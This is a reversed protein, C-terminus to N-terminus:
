SIGFLLPRARSNRSVSIGTESLKKRKEWSPIETKKVANRLYKHFARPLYFSILSLRWSVHSAVSAVPCAVKLISQFQTFLFQRILISLVQVNYISWLIVKLSQRHLYKWRCDSNKRCADKGKTKRQSLVYYNDM